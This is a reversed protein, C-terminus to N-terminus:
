LGPESAQLSREGFSQYSVTMISYRTPTCVTSPSHADTFRMGEAALRDLNPTPVRSEPNYCGVDGYGLDDALIFLINPNEAAHLATFLLSLLLVIKKMILSTRQEWVSGASQAREDDPPPRWFVGACLVTQNTDSVVLLLALVSAPLAAGAYADYNM